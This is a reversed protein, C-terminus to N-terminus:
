AVKFEKKLQSITKVTKAGEIEKEGGLIIVRKQSCDKIGSRRVGVVLPLLSETYELNGDIIVGLTETEKLKAISETINKYNGTVIQGPEFGLQPAMNDACSSLLLIKRM